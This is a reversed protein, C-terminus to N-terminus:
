WSRNISISQNQMVLHFPNNIRKVIEANHTSLIITIGLGHLQKLLSMIHLSNEEDLSEIPEDAILLSPKSIVARAIGVRQKEGGSLSDVGCNYRTIGAWDLIKKAQEQSEEFTFGRIILPLAVNDLISLNELLRYDQFIVGIKERIITKEKTDSTKDGFIYISGWTPNLDLYLMRLLSTKGCGSEGTIICFAGNPIDLNLGKFLLNGNRSMGVNKFFVASNDFM